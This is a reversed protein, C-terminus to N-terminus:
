KELLEEQSVTVAKGFWNQQRALEVDGRTVRAPEGEKNRMSFTIHDGSAFHTPNSRWIQWEESNACGATVFLAAGILLMHLQTRRM